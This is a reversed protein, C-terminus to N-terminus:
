PRRAGVGAYDHGRWYVLNHRSEAGPRAHNSIEYAPLGAAECLEQTAGYLARAVRRWEARALTGAAHRAAFPTGAEITLQYLSLHEDAYHSRAACAGRALGAREAGAAWLHPRLVRPRFPAQRHALAALAEDSTHMRGLAKLDADDLAQVGLSLRNVGAARYGAFREAEVSTPNAELTVEADRHSPGCSRRHARPHRRREGAGDAVAHRRRLLHQHRAARARALRFPRARRSLRRPVQAEDIGGHRVHSNFDCYPCKALCFPWHVYVGFPMRRHTRVSRSMRGHVITTAAAMLQAFARARHSIADKKAPDMEGFTEHYGDPVFM